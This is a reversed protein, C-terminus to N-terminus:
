IMCLYSQVTVKVQIMVEEKIKTISNEKVQNIVEEQIKVQIM